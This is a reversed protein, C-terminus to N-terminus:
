KTVLYAIGAIWLFLITGIIGRDLALLMQRRSQYSYSQLVQLIFVQELDEVLFRSDTAAFETWRDSFTRFSEITEAVQRGRVSDDQGLIPPEKPLNYKFYWSRIDAVDRYPYNKSRGSGYLVMIHIGTLLLTILTLGVFGAPIWHISNAFKFAPVLLVGMLALLALGIQLLRHRQDEYWDFRRAQYDIQKYLREKLADGDLGALKALLDERAKQMEERLANPNLTNGLV